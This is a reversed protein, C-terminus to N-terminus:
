REHRLSGDTWYRMKQGDRRRAVLNVPRPKGDRTAWDPVTGTEALTRISTSQERERQALRYAFGAM